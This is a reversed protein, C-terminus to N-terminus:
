NRSQSSYPSGGSLWAILKGGIRLSVLHGFFRSKTLQEEDFMDYFPLNRQIYPSDPAGTPAINRNRASKARRAM